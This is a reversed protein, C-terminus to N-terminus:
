FAEVKIFIQRDSTGVTSHRDVIGKNHSNSQESIGGVQIWEGSQGSLQTSVLQTDITYGDIHKAQQDLQLVVRDGQLRATVGFGSMVPKYQDSTVVGGVVGYRSQVPIEQGTQIFVRQGEEARLQYSSEGTGWGTSRTVTVSGSSKQQIPKGDPAITGRTINGQTRLGSQNQNGTSLTKVSILLQKVPIDLEDILLALQEYNQKSTRLVLKNGAVSLYGNSNVLPAISAAVSEASRHRIPITYIIQSDAGYSPATPITTAIVLLLTAVILSKMSNIEYAWASYSM